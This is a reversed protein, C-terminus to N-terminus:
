GLLDEFPDAAKKPAAPKLAAAIAKVPDANKFVKGAGTERYGINAQFGGDPNRFLNLAQVGRTTMAERIATELDTM